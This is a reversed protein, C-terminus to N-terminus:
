IEEDNPWMADRLKKRARHVRVKAASEGIDLQKAIDQISFGYVDRLMVPIRYHDALSALAAELRNMDLRSGAAEEVTGRSEIERASELDIERHQRRSRSRHRSIAANTAIRYLWTPFQADGRFRALGRWALVFADQTAEAADHENGLVRLCLTYVERHTAEVLERWAAEDGRKCREILEVPVIARHPGAAAHTLREM